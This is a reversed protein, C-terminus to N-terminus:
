SYRDNISDPDQFFNPDFPYELDVLLAKKSMTLLFLSYKEFKFHYSSIFYVTKTKSHDLINSVIQNKLYFFM